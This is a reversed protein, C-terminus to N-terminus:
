YSVLQLNSWNFIRDTLSEILYLNSWNFIRDTLSEMRKGGVSSFRDKNEWRRLICNFSETELENMERCFFVKTSWNKDNSPIPRFLRWVVKKMRRLWKTKKNEIDIKIPPTTAATKTNSSNHSSTQKGNSKSMDGPDKKTNIAKLQSVRWMSRHEGKLHRLM